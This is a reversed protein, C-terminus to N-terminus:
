KPRLLLVLGPVTISPWSSNLSWNKTVSSSGTLKIQQRFTCNLSNMKDAGNYHECLEFHPFSLKVVSNHFHLCIDQLFVQFILGGFWEWQCLTCFHHLGFPQALIIRQIHHMKWLFGNGKIPVFISLLDASNFTLWLGYTLKVYMGVYQLCWLGSCEWTEPGRESNRM